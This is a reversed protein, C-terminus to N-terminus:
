LKCGLPSYNDIYMIHIHYHISESVFFFGDCVFWCAGLLGCPTSCFSLVPCLWCAMSLRKEVDNHGHHLYPSTDITGDVDVGVDPRKNKIIHTLM